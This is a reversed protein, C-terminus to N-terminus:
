LSEIIEIEREYFKNHQKELCDINILEYQFEKSNVKLEWIDKKVTHGYIQILKNVPYQELTHQDCWTPGGWAAGGGRDWGAPFLLDRGEETKMMQNIKTAYNDIGVEKVKSMNLWPQSVGAHTWLVNGIQFAVNFLELNDHFLQSLELHMSERYGSCKYKTWIYQVDHNGLLLEITEPHEKKFNIVNKLNNYITKDFVDWSDCYDGVFIIKDYYYVDDKIEMWRVRGHLDGISLTKIIKTNKGNSM